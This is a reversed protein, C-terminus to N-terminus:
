SMRILPIALDKRNRIDSASSGQFGKHAIIREAGQRIFRALVDFNKEDGSLQNYAQTAGAVVRGAMQDADRASFGARVFLTQIDDAANGAKNPRAYSVQTSPMKVDWNLGDATPTAATAGINVRTSAGQDGGATETAAASVSTTGSEIGMRERPTTWDDGMIRRGEAEWDRAELPVIASTTAGVARDEGVSPTVGREQGVAGALEEETSFDYLGQPVDRGARLAPRQYRGEGVGIPAQGQLQALQQADSLGSRASIGFKRIASEVGSLKNVEQINGFQADQPIFQTLATYMEDAADKGGIASALQDLMGSKKAYYLFAPNDAIKSILGVKIEDRKLVNEQAKLLELNRNHISVEQMEGRKIARDLANQEAQFEIEAERLDLNLEFMREQLSREADVKQQIQKTLNQHEVEVRELLRQHTDELEGQRLNFEFDLNARTQEGQILATKREEEGRTREQIERAQADYQAKVGALTEAFGAKLIELSQSNQSEIAAFYTDGEFALADSLVKDAYDGAVQIAEADNYLSQFMSASMNMDLEEVGTLDIGLFMAMDETLPTDPGILEGAFYLGGDEPNIRLGPDNVAIWNKVLQAEAPNHPIAGLNPTAQKWNNAFAERAPRDLVEFMLGAQGMGGYQEINSADLGMGTWDELQTDIDTQIGAIRSQDAEYAELQQQEKKATQIATAAAEEEFSRGTYSGHLGAALGSASSVGTATKPITAAAAVKPTPVVKAPLNAWPLEGSVPWDDESEMGWNWDVERDYHQPM